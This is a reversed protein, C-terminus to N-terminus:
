NVHRPLPNPLDIVEDDDLARPPALGDLKRDLRELLAEVHQNAALAPERTADRLDDIAGSVSDALKGVAEVVDALDSCLEAIRQDVLQAVKAVLRAELRAELATNAAADACEINRRVEALIRERDEPSFESM